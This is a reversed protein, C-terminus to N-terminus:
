VVGSVCSRLDFDELLDEEVEVSGGRKVIENEFWQIQTEILQRKVKKKIKLSKTKTYVSRVKKKTQETYKELREAETEMGVVKLIGSSVESAAICTEYNSLAGLVAVKGIGATKTGRLKEEVEELLGKARLALYRELRTTLFGM